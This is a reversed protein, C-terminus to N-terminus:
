DDETLYDELSPNSGSSQSYHAAWKLEQNESLTRSVIFNLDHQLEQLESHLRNVIEWLKENTRELPFEPADDKIEPTQTKADMYKKILPVDIRACLYKITLVSEFISLMMKQYCNSFFHTLRHETLNSVM